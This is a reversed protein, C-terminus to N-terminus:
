WLPELSGKINKKKVDNLLKISLYLNFDENRFIKLDLDEKELLETIYKQEYFNFYKIKDDLSNNSEM